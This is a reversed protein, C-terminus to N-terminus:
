DMILDLLEKIADKVRGERNYIIKVWSANYISYAMAIARNIEQHLRIEEMSEVDRRRSADRERRAYIEEESAEIIIIKSPEIERIVWEPLGPWYGKPTKITMHTDVIVSGESVMGSIKKAAKKQIEKQIHPPQKRLEDRDSVIGEEKAIELMVDGFNVVKINKGKERAYKVANEIVTTKGVGPIGAVVIVENM